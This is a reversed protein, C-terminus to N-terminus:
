FNYTVAIRSLMSDGFGFATDAKPLGNMGPVSGLTSASVTNNTAVLGDVQVDGFTLGLGAGVSTTGAFSNRVNGAQWEQGLLSHAISGRIALWSLAQSEAALVLPINYNKTETGSLVKSSGMDAEIRAFMTTSKTAEMKYGAGIGWNSMRTETTTTATANFDQGFGMFKAFITWNEMAYTAGADWSFKTKLENGFTAGDKQESKGTIDFTSFVQFNNVDIGVRAGLLSATQEPGVAARTNNAAYFVNLGWGLSGEGAFFVDITSEPAIFSAGPAQLNDQNNNLYIGYTYDGFTNTFGGQAKTGTEAPSDAGVTGGLELFMKKKYKVIQAPNLFMNRSDQIYYSGNKGEGLSELRARSAFAPAAMIMVSLVLTLNKLM